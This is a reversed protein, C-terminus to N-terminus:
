HITATTRNFGHTFRFPKGCKLRINSVKFSKAYFLINIIIRVSNSAYWFEVGEETEHSYSEFEKILSDIDTDKMDKKKMDNVEKPDTQATRELMEDFSMDVKLPKENTM